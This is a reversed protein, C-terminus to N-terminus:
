APVSVKRIFQAVHIDPFGDKVEHAKWTRSEPSWWFVMEVDTRIKPVKISGILHGVMDHMTRPKKKTKTKPKAKM